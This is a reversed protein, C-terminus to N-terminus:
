KENSLTKLLIELQNIKFTNDYEDSINIGWPKGYTYNFRTINGVSMIMEYLEPFDKSIQAEHAKDNMTLYEQKSYIVRYYCNCIFTLASKQKIAIIIDEIISIKRKITYM